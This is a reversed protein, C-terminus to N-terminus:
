DADTQVLRAVINGKDDVLTMEIRQHAFQAKELVQLLLFELDMVAEPCAMRTAGLPGVEIDGGDLAYKGFFSNCGGHGALESDSGFRVFMDTDAPIETGLIELPRWESGALDAAMSPAVAFPLLHLTCGLVSLIKMKMKM